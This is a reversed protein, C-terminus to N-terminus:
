GAAAPPQRAGLGRELQSEGTTLVEVVLTQGFGFLRERSVLGGPRENLVCVYVVFMTTLDDNCHPGVAQCRYCPEQENEDQNGRLIM